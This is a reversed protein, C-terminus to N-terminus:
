EILTLFDYIIKAAAGKESKLLKADAPMKGSLFEALFKTNQVTTYETKTLVDSFEAASEFDNVYIAHQAALFAGYQTTPFTQRDSVNQATAHLFMAGGIVAVVAILAVGTFIKEVKRM